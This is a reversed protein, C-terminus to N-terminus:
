SQNRVKTGEWLFKLCTVLATVQIGYPSGGEGWWSVMKTIHWFTKILWCILRLDSPHWCQKDHSKDGPSSKCSICMRAFRSISQWCNCSISNETMILVVKIFSVVIITSFFIIWHIKSFHIIILQFLLYFQFLSGGGEWGVKEAKM